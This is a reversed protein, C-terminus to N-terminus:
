VVLNIIADVGLLAAVVMLFIAFLFVMTLFCMVTWRCLTEVAEKILGM